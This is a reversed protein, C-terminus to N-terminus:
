LVGLWGGAGRFRGACGRRGVVPRLAGELGRVGGSGPVGCGTGAEECAGQM